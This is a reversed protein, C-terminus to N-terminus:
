PSEHATDREGIRDWRVANPKRERATRRLLQPPPFPEAVGGGDVGTMLLKVAEGAVTVSPCVVVSAHCTLLVVETCSLLTDAMSGADEDETTITGAAEVV